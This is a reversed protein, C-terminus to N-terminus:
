RRQKEIANRSTKPSTVGRRWVDFVGWFIVLVFFSFGFRCGKWATGGVAVGPWVSIM